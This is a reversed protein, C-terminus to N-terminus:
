KKILKNIDDKSFGFIYENTMQFISNNSGENVNVIQGIRIFRNKKWNLIYFKAIIFTIMDEESGNTLYLHKVQKEEKEILIPINNKLYVITKEYGGAWGLKKISEVKTVKSSLIQKEIKAISKSESKTQGNCIYSILLFFIYLIQKM